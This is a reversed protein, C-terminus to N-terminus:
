GKGHWYCSGAGTWSRVFILESLVKVHMIENFETGLAGSHIFAYTQKIKFYCFALTHTHPPLIKGSIGAYPSLFFFDVQYGCFDEVWLKDEFCTNM